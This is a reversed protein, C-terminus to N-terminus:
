NQIFKINQLNQFVVYRSIKYKYGVSYKRGRILCFNIIKTKYSLKIYKNNILTANIKNANNIYNNLILTKSLVKLLEYKLFLIRKLYDTNINNKQRSYQAKSTVIKFLNNDILKVSYLIKHGM